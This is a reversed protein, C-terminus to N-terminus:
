GRLCFLNAIRAVETQGLSTVSFAGIAKQKPAKKPQSNVTSIM